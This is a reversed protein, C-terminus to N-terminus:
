PYLGLEMWERRLEVQEPENLHLIRATVRGIPTTGINEGDHLEFHDEWVDFRPNFLRTLQGTPKDISAINPGKHKNCHVCCLCLNDEATEGDHDTAIIHDVQFTAVSLVQLRFCYECRDKARTKVFHRLDAPIYTM